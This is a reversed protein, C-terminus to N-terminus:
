SHIREMVNTTSVGVALLSLFKYLPNAGAPEGIVIGLLYGAVPIAVLKSMIFRWDSDKDELLSLASLVQTAGIVGATVFFLEKNQEQEYEAWTKPKETEMAFASSGSILSIALVPLVLRNSLKM